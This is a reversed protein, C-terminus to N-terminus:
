DFSFTIGNISVTLEDGIGITKYPTPAAAWFLLNGGTLADFIGVAVITGWIASAAPFTLAVANGKSGAVAAPFNTSNNTVAARAYSGGAVETGGGADTPVATYLAVYVTAPRAYDAGGLIHDLLENELFDSMAGM